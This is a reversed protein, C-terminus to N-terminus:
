IKDESNWIFLKVRDGPIYKWIYKNYSINEEYVLSPITYRSM